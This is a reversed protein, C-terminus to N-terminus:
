SIVPWFLVALGICAAAICCRFWWADWTPCSDAFDYSLLDTDNRQLVKQLWTRTM